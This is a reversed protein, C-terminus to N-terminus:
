ESPMEKIMEEIYAQEKKTIGYKEYLEEDTWEHDWAQEPVWSYTSRLAHQSIKRLSVLFRFFRTQVYSQFSEAQSKKGFPGAVLFTQTCASDPRALDPKGLVADPPQKGGDSGAEPLLVKWASLLNKNKTINSRATWGQVRRGDRLAHIAIEGKREQGLHYDGFNTALGFPTDGSVLGLISNESDPIVKRLIRLARSDRVFVDFEDLQRKDPGIRESGRHVTVECDEDAESDWLFYSVGGKIEVGPFLSAADPFDVFHTLRRDSLMRERFTDLGRGGAVWRSPTIMMVYRPDLNIANEVFCNYLPTANTGGGGGDMQYPPNGVIVDFKMEMVEEIKKRGDSHIFGYAYNELDEGREIQRKSAGCESCRGKDNFDHETREFWINGESTPMEVISRESSADKSCYLTRRAMLATLETIAIGFVMEQLIHRLRENEDPIEEDLGTMLRRTIERLFVGTKTGPDLWRLSPDRWVEEPLLDLMENVVKPPTFVEDSSLNSIVELVDAQRTEQTKLM